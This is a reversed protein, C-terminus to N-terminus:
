HFFNLKKKINLGANVLGSGYAAAAGAGTSGDDDNILQQYIPNLSSPDMEILQKIILQDQEKDDQDQSYQDYQSQRYALTLAEKLQQMEILKNLRVGYNINFKSQPQTLIWTQLSRPIKSNILFTQSSNSNSNFPFKPTSPSKLWATLDEENGTSIYNQLKYYNLKELSINFKQCFQNLKNTLNLSILLKLTGIISNSSDTPFVEPSIQLEEILSQQFKVLEIHRNILKVNAPDDQHIRASEKWDEATLVQQKSIKLDIYQKFKDNTLLWQIEADAGGSSNKLSILYQHILALQDFQGILKILEAKNSVAGMIKILEMQLLDLDKLQLCNKIILDYKSLQFYNTNQVIPNTELQVTLLEFLKTRSENYCAKFVPILDIKDSALHHFKDKIKDFVEEDTFQDVSKIKLLCWDQFVANPSWQWIQCLKFALGFLKRQNLVRIIDDINLEERDNITIFIGLDRLQNLIRVTSIFWDFVSNLDTSTDHQGLEYVSKGLNAAKILKKQWYPDFETLACSLCDQICNIMDDSPIYNLNQFSKPNHSALLDLSNILISSNAISGIKFLNLTQQNVKSLLEITTTTLILLGQKTNTMQLIPWMLYFRLQGGPAILQLHDSYQLIVCDSGCWNVSLPSSDLRQSLLTKATSVTSSVSIIQLENNFSVTALFQSNLSTSIFKFDGTIGEMERSTNSVKLLKGQQNLVLSFFNGGQPLITWNTIVNEIQKGFKALRFMPEVYDYNIESQQQQQNERIYWFQNFVDLIVLVGDNLLRIQHTKLDKFEIFQCKGKIAVSYYIKVKDVEVIILNEHWWKIERIQTSGNPLTISNLFHYNCDFIEVVNNIHVAITKSLQSISINSPILSNTTTIDQFPNNAAPRSSTLTSIGDLQENNSIERLRYYVDNLRHWNSGPTTM